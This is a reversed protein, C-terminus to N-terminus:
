NELIMYFGRASFLRNSTLTYAGGSEAAPFERLLQGSNLDFIRYLNRDNLVGGLQKLHDNLSLDVLEGDSNWSTLASFDPIRRITIKNTSSVTVFSEGGDLFGLIADDTEYYPLVPFTDAPLTFFNYVGHGDSFYDKQDAILARYTFAQAAMHLMLKTQNMDYILLGIPALNGSYGPSYVALVLFNDNAVDMDTIILDPHYIVNLDYEAAIQLTQPDIRYFKSSKYHAAYLWQGNNSVTFLLKGSGSVPGGLTEEGSTRDIKKLSDGSNLFWADQAINEELHTHPYFRSGTWASMKSSSCFYPNIGGGASFTLLYFDYARGFQIDNIVWTTDQISKNTKISYDVGTSESLRLNYYGFNLPFACANWNLSLSSVGVQSFGLLRPYAANIEATNGQYEGNDTVITVHYFALGGVYENDILSITKRDKVEGILKWETLSGSTAKGRYIHYAQFDYRDYIKWKIRLMRNEVIVEPKPPTPYASNDIIVPWEKEIRVTESSALDALSGSGSPAEIIMRLRHIGDKFYETHFTFSEIQTSFHINVEDIFFQIKCDTLKGTDLTYNITTKGSFVLTDASGPLQVSVDPQDVTVQHYNEGSPEFECSTMFVLGAFLLILARPFIM